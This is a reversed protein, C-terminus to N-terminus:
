VDSRGCSQWQLQSIFAVEEQCHSWGKGWCQGVKVRRWLIDLHLFLAGRFTVTRLGWGFAWAQVNQQWPLEASRSCLIHGLSSM